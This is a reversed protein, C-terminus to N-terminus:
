DFKGFKTIGNVSRIDSVTREWSDRCIPESASCSLGQNLM